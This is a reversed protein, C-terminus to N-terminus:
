EMEATDWLARANPNSGMQVTASSMIASIGANTVFKVFSLCYQWFREFIWWAM